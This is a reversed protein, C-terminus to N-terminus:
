LGNEKLANNALEVIGGAAWGSNKHDPDGDGGRSWLSAHFLEHALASQHLTQDIGVWCTYQPLWTVGSVCHNFDRIPASFDYQGIYFSLFTGDATPYCDFNEPHVWSVSPPTRTNGYLTYWVLGVAKDQNPQPTSDVPIGPGCAGLLLAVIVLNRM